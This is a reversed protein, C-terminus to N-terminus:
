RERDLEIQEQEAQEAALRLKEKKSLKKKPV